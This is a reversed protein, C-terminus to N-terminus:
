FQGDLDRKNNKITINTNFTLAPRKFDGQSQGGGAGGQEEILAEGSGENMHFGADIQDKLAIRQMKIMKYQERMIDTQIELQEEALRASNTKQLDLKFQPRLYKVEFWRSFIEWLPFSIDHQINAITAIVARESTLAGQGGVGGTVSRGFLWNLTTGTGSVIDEKIFEGFEQLGQGVKSDLVEMSDGAGLIFMYNQRFTEVLELYKLYTTRNPQEQAMRFIPIIEGWKSINKVGGQIIQFYAMASLWIPEFVSLGLWDFTVKRTSLPYVRDKHIQSQSFIGGAFEWVDKDYDLKGTETLNTVYLVTPPFADFSEPPKNRPPPKSFDDDKGWYFVLFAIGYGREFALAEEFWNWFNTRLTWQKIKSIEPNGKVIKETRIDFFDMQNRVASAALGRTVRQGWGVRSDMIMKLDQLPPRWTDKGTPNSKYIDDSPAYYKKFDSRQNRVMDEIQTLADLASREAQEKTLNKALRVKAVPTYNEIPYKVNFDPPPPLFDTETKSM